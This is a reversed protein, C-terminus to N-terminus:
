FKIIAISAHDGITVKCLEYGLLKEYDSLAKQIGKGLSVSFYDHILIVGGKVMLPYFIKLGEFIPKYLDMDLRVFCFEDQIGLASEPIYGQHIECNQPFLMKELVVERSINSYAGVCNFRSKEFEEDKLNLNVDIDSKRFGDGEFPDFLYFKRDSFYKNIFHAFKGVSVGCEAVNGRMNKFKVYDAFGKLWIVMTDAYENHRLKKLQLIEFLLEREDSLVKIKSKPIELKQCQKEIDFIQIANTNSIIIEDFEINSIQSPNIIPIGETPDNDLRIREPLNLGNDLFGIVQYKEPSKNLHEYLRVGMEGAGFILIKLFVVGKM